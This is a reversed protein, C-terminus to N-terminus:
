EFIPGQYKEALPVDKFVNEFEKVNISEKFKRIRDLPINPDFITVSYGNPAFKKDITIIYDMVIKAQPKEWYFIPHYHTEKTISHNEIVGIKKIYDNGWKKICGKIIGLMKSKIFDPTGSRSLDIKSLRDDTFEYVVSSFFDNKLGKEFYLQSYPWDDRKINPKIKQLEKLSMGLYVGELGKPTSLTDTAYTESPILYSFLTTILILSSMFIRM